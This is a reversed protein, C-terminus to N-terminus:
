CVLYFRGVPVLLVRDSSRIRPGLELRVVDLTLCGDVGRSM